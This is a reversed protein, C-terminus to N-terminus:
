SAAGGSPTPTPTPTKPATPTPAPTPTPTAPSPPAVPASPTAPSPKEVGGDNVFQRWEGHSKWSPWPRPRILGNSSWVPALSGDADIRGIKAVKWTAHTEADIAITEGGQRETARLIASRIQAASDDAGREIAGTILEIALIAVLAQADPNSGGSRALYASLLEPEVVDDAKLSSLVIYDGKTLRTDILRLERGRLAWSITPAVDSTIGEARMAGLFRQTAAAGLGSVIVDPSASRVERVVAAMDADNPSVVRDGVIEGGIAPVHDRLIAHVTRGVLSDDSLLFVRPGIQRVAWAAAPVARQNPLLGLTILSASDDLGETSTTGLLLGGLPEIAAEIARRETPANGGVMVGVGSRVLREAASAAGAATSETDAVVGVLPHGRAGGRKNVVDIAALAADLTVKDFAANAGTKAVVIGIEIPTRSAARNKWLLFVVVSVLCAAVAARLVFVRLSLKM